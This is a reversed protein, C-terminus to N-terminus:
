NNKNFLKLVTAVVDSLSANEPLKDIMKPAENLLTESFKSEIIKKVWDIDNVSKNGLYIQEFVYASGEGLAGVIVAAVIANLISAAVNIGPIAKLGSIVAKAAVSVTGVEIMTNLLRKYDEDSKIGYIKALLNIEATETPVLLLADSFAIPVAGITAGAAVSLAIASQSWIRKRNLKYNDIDKKAARIGDPLLSNIGEILEELGDSAVVYEDTIVYPSAVVPYIGSPTRSKNEFAANVMLINAERDPNSYSKTIAVIIPVSKYIGTAKFFDDITKSFLKSSTGDVCLCIVDFSLDEESNASQKSFKKVDEVAKNRQFLKTPEFGMTDIIRFPVEDNEYVKAAKTTGEVGIGTAGDAGLIANILTTKGVGSNGIFLVNGKKM